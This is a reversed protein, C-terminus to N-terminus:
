SHLAEPGLHRYVGAPHGRLEIDREHRASLRDAVRRSPANDPVIYSVLTCWGLERYAFARVRHAAETAYGRGHAHAALSWGLEREPWGHPFWLGSYGIWSGSAKEEIVWNGYRRLAWHGIQDAMRRWADDPSCVGGIFRATAENGCFNAFSGHDDERWARLRLRETELAEDILPRLTEWEPRSGKSQLEQMLHAEQERHQRAREKRLAVWLATRAGYRDDLRELTHFLLEPWALVEGGSLIIRDVAVDDPDPLHEVCRSAQEPSLGRAGPQSDNYCHGCRQNCHRSVVWYVSDM